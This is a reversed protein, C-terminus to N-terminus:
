INTETNYIETQHVNQEPRVNTCHLFKVEISTNYVEWYLFPHKTYLTKRCMMIVPNISCVCFDSRLIMLKRLGTFIVTRFKWLERSSIQSHHGCPSTTKSSTRKQFRMGLNFWSFIIVINSDFFFWSLFAYRVQTETTLIRPELGVIYWISQLSNELSSLM